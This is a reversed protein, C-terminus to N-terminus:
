GTNGHSGSPGLLIGLPEGHGAVLLHHAAALVGDALAVEALAGGVEGGVLVQHFLRVAQLKLVLARRAHGGSGGGGGGGVGGGSLPRGRVASGPLGRPFEEVVLDAPNLRLLKVQLVRVVALRRRPQAYLGQRRRRLVFVLHRGNLPTRTHRSPASVGGVIPPSPPPIEQLPGTSSRRHRTIICYLFVFDQQGSGFAVTQDSASFGQHLSPTPISIRQSYIKSM